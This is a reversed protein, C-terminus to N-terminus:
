KQKLLACFTFCFFKRPVAFKAIPGIINGRSVLATYSYKTIFDFSVNKTVTYPIQKSLMPVMAKTMSTAGENKLMKYGTVLWGRSRKEPNAVMRIRLAEMPLLMVSAAMGSIAASISFSVVKSSLFALYKSCAAVQALWLFVVPKLIEYVGYKIAGEMLYGIATSFFLFINKTLNYRTHLHQVVVAIESLISSTGTPGLGSLLGGVGETRFIYSFAQPFSQSALEPDVQKRTKVVDIPVPIVHSATACLGGALFYKWGGPGSVTVLWVFAATMASLFTGMIFYDKATIHDHETYYSDLQLFLCEEDGDECTLPKTAELLQDWRVIQSPSDINHIPSVTSYLVSADESKHMTFDDENNKNSAM